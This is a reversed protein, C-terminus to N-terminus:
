DVLRINAHFNDSDRISVPGVVEAYLDSQTSEMPETIFMEVFNGFTPYTNSGKVNLADCKLVAVKVVRRKPDSSPTSSPVGASPITPMTPTVKKYGSPLTSPAPYLTQKGNRAFTVGMEYLYVQYRTYNALDDPEMDSPHYTNWYSTPNWNGNGLISATAMDSDRGYTMIDKAPTKPNNKGADFRENVGDRVQQTKVGTATDVVTGNTEGYCGEPPDGALADNISSAGCNGTAPCLLGYNGPVFSGGGSGKIVMQRGVNATSRLSLSANSEGPDCVMFPPVECVIHAPTATAKADLEVSERTGKTSVMRLVGDLFTNATRPSLEVRAYIADIDSTALKLSPEVEEYFTVTAVALDSSDDALLSQNKLASKAVATARDRAGDEGDLQNAASIAAADAANQMQSRLVVLRGVDVALVGTGLLLPAMLAFYVASAGRRDRLWRRGICSLNPLPIM